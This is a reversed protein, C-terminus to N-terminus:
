KESPTLLWVKALAGATDKTSAKIFVDQRQQTYHFFDKILELHAINDGSGFENRLAVPLALEIDNQAIVTSGAFELGVSQLTEAVQTFFYPQWNEALANHALQRVGAPSAAVAKKWHELVERAHPNKTFFGANSDNLAELLEMGRAVRAESGHQLQRTFDRMLYWIRSIPAKGPLSMYDVYFLGGDRLYQQLISHVAAEASADLWSYTGSTAIYDFQPLGRQLIDEFSGEIYEVNHLNSAEAHSRAIEIHERNFDIGVLQARANSAAMGNLTPQLTSGLELYSYEASPAPPAYGASAAIYSLLAPRQRGIYGYDFIVDKIYGSKSKDSM